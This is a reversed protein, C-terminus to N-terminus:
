ARVLSREAFYARHDPLAAIARKADAAVVAMLRAGAEPAVFDRFAGLTKPRWGMGLMIYLWHHEMFLAFRNPFDFQQPPRVSWRDLLELLSDPASSPEANDRWFATDRRTSLFYHVKIFDRIEEYLGIMRRNYLTALRELAGRYAGGGSEQGALGLVGQLSDALQVAGAEILYIGTSELPEIFGGSLGIAAVNGRWFAESRGVRMRLHRAELGESRSGVHRRLEAEAQEPSVHQSSYVYGTGRRSQLDIEWIWGADKATTSTYPRIAEEPATPVRLAVARDCLLSDNYSVFGVGLKRGILLGAFGTCDVFFDGAITGHEATVIAEVTGDPGLKADLVDDFVRVVGARVARDALFEALREADLHYAYGNVGEYPPMEPQRPARGAMAVTYQAGVDRAYQADPLHSRAALWWLQPSFNLINTYDFPHFYSNHPTGPENKWDRYLIGHKFSASTARMFEREDIGLFRLLTRITPVTAEGVGLIGIRSSEVLTIRVPRGAGQSLRRQLVSAAIWGATGGGVIVISVPNM